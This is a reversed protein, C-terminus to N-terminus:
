FIRVVVVFVLVLILVVLELSCEVQENLGLHPEGDKLGM